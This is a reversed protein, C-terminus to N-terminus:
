INNNYYLASMMDRAFSYHTLGDNGRGMYPLGSFSSPHGGRYHQDAMYINIHMFSFLIILSYDSRNLNTLLLLIIIASLFSLLSILINTQNNNISISLPNNEYFDSAYITLNGKIAM